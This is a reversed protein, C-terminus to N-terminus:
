FWRPIRGLLQLFEVIGFPSSKAGAASGDKPLIVKEEEITRCYGCKSCWGLSEPNILKAGCRPCPAAAPTQPAAPAADVVVAADAGASRAVDPRISLTPTDPENETSSAM